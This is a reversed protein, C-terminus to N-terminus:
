KGSTSEFLSPRENNGAVPPSHDVCPGCEALIEELNRYSLGYSLYWRVCQRIADKASWRVKFDIVM